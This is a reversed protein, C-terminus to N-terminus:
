LSTLAALAAVRHRRQEDADAHHHQQHRHRHRYPARLGLALLFGLQHKAAFLDRPRDVEVRPLHAAAIERRTQVDEDLLPEQALFVFIRHGLATLPIEDRGSLSHWPLGARLLLLLWTASTAPGGSPQARWWRATARRILTLAARSEALGAPDHADPALALFRRKADVLSAASVVVLPLEQETADAVTRAHRSSLSHRSQRTAASGTLTSVSRANRRPCAWAATGAHARAAAAGAGAQGRAGCRATASRIAAAPFGAVHAPSDLASLSVTM